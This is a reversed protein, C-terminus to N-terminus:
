GEDEKPAKIMLMAPTFTLTLVTSVILGGAITASLQEWM